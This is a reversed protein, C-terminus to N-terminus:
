RQVTGPFTGDSVLHGGSDHSFKPCTCSDGIHAGLPVLCRTPPTGAPLVAPDVLCSPAKVLPGGISAASIRVKGWVSENPGRTFPMGEWQALVVFFPGSGVDLNNAASVRSGQLDEVLVTGVGGADVTIRIVYWTRLSVARSLVQRMANGAYNGLGTYGLWFGYYGGNSTNLNGNVTLYQSGDARVLYLAFPSGNAIAGMVKAELILPTSFSNMSQIGTSQYADDVGAMSMGSSSFAIRVPVFKTDAKLLHANLVEGYTSWISQNLFHDSTFDDEFSTPLPDRQSVGSVTVYITTSTTLENSDSAAATVLFSGPHTFAHTVPFWSESPATGDGFSWSISTIKAGPTTPMVVGNISVILGSVQPPFFKITPPTAKKARIPQQASAGPPKTAGPQEGLVRLDDIVQKVGEHGDAISDARARDADKDVRGTLTVIGNRATVQIDAKRLNSDNHFDSELAIVISADITAPHRHSLFTVLLGVLALAIVVSVIMQFPLRRPRPGASVHLTPASNTPPTISLSYHDRLATGLEHATAWRQERDRQLCKLCISELDPSLDPRLVRPRTLKAAEIHLSLEQKTTGSFPREGTLAEYLIVGLSWIDARPDLTEGKFHEPPVYALTGALEERRDYRDTNLLALGFDTIHPRGELDVLINAPKLDRHIIGASHAAVLAEAVQALLPVIQQLPLRASELLEQLSKGDVYEMTLYPTDGQRLNLYHGTVIAPHKLQALVEFERMVSDFLEPNTAVYFVKIAFRSRTGKIRGRYVRGFAGVGRLEELEYNGVEAPFEKNIIYSHQPFRELYQDIAPREGRHGRYELEIAVLEAFLDALDRDCWGELYSELQPNAKKKLEAEFRDVVQNIKELLAREHSSTLSSLM